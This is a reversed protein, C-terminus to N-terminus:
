LHNYLLKLSKFRDFENVNRNDQKISQAFFVLDLKFFVLQFYGNFLAFAAFREASVERNGYETREALSKERFFNGM